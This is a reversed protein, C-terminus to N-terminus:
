DLFAMQLSADAPLGWVAALTLAPLGLLALLRRDERLLPILAAGLVMILGPPFAFESTM